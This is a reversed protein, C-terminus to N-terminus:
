RNRTVVAKGPTGGSRLQALVEPVDAMTVVTGLPTSIANQEALQFLHAIHETNEEPTFGAALVGVVSYNRIAMDAPDVPAWSGSAFGVTAFRGYRAIARLAAGAIDGGVPDIIVDFGRGATHTEAAASIADPDRAIAIDAGVDLCFQRKQETSAVAVVHAGLAKALSIATAGTGGSGGLVLVSEGPELHCRTVLATYATRYGIYFGAAETDSMADPARCTFSETLYAHTAFGGSGAYFQTPGFVRDGVAFSSNAPAAVVTGCAEQGPTIPPRRVLPYNGELILVDPLGVAAANVEILLSGDQPEDWQREQWELPGGFSEAVWAHGAVM